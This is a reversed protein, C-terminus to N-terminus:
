EKVFKLAETKGGTTINIYYTGPQLNTTPTRYQTSGNSVGKALVTGSGNAISINTTENTKLGQVTVYDKAPNPYLSTTSALDSESVLVKNSFTKYGGKDIAVVRYFGADAVAVNYDQMRSSGAANVKGQEAFGKGWKSYQISYYSINKNDLGQWSIGHNHLWRKIRVALPQQEKDGNYRILLYSDGKNGDYYSGGLVIKGDQQQLACYATADGTYYTQQKGDVAFSSDLGGDGNLRCLAFDSNYTNGSSYVVRGALILKGDPQLLITNANPIQGEFAVFSKGGNGFTKDLVGNTEYRLAAMYTIFNYGASTGGLVIKGDPQLLIGKTVDEGNIGQTVVIGGTGFSNDLKGDSKYRILVFDRSDDGGREAFGGLLIKSDKQIALAGDEVAFYDPVKQLIRGGSGFSYDFAGDASLRSLIMYEPELYEADTQGAGAIIIRGDQELRIKDYGSFDKFDPIFSMGNIGFASDFAGNPQFRAVFYHSKDDESLLSAVILIKGDTQKIMDSTGGRSAFGAFGSNGFSSDLLGDPLFRAIYGRPDSNFGGAALIKGDQQQAIARIGSPMKTSVIGKNGFTNDVTGPQSYTTNAILLAILLLLVQRM